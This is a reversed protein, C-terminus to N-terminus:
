FKKSFFDYIYESNITEDHFIIIDDVYRYVFIKDKEINMEDLINEILIGLFTEAIMRAYAPGQPVGVRNGNINRMVKENFSILKELINKQKEDIYSDFLKYIGLFDISDYFHYVDLTIVNMSEYLDIGLFRRIIEGPIIGIFFCIM